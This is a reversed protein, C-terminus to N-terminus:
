AEGSAAEFAKHQRVLEAAEALVADVHEAPATLLWEGTLETAAILSAQLEVTGAAARIADLAACVAGFAELTTYKTPTSM